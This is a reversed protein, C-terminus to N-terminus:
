GEIYMYAPTNLLQGDSTVVKPTTLGSFSCTEGFVTSLTIASFDQKVEVGSYVVAIM